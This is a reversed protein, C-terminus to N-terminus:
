CIAACGSFQCVPAQLGLSEVAYEETLIDAHHVENPPMSALNQILAVM